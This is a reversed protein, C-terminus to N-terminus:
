AVMRDDPPPQSYLPGNIPGFKGQKANWHGRIDVQSFIRALGQRVRGATLPQQRRWPANNALIEVKPNKQLALLQPIAYSTSLIQTWRHLVQRTQQWAEKWGWRNKLQNFLDEIAWRRHYAMLIRAASLTVDTCLILRPSRLTGEENELQVWVARVRQGDLFYTLVEASRYHVTKWGGYLFLQQRIVPQRGVVEPTWRQGYKRPRGRKGNHRPPPFYLATDKRVQGIVHYGMEQARFLLTKRM